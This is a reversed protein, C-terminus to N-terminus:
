STATQIELAFLGVLLPLGRIIGYNLGVTVVCIKDIALVSSFIGALGKHYSIESFLSM